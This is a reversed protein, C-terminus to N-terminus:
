RARWIRVTVVHGLSEDVDCAFGREALFPFLLQPVRTNVHQLVYGEPLTELAALTRMLPEPPELGRVDLVITSEDHAVPADDGSTAAPQADPPESPQADPRWFWSSWDDPADARSESAFGRKALVGFLPAPEFITRLLLVENTGLAGVASMIRSFPERGARLDERVDVEVIAASTPHTVPQEAHNSATVPTETAADAGANSFGLAENLRRVLRDAPVNAIRAAQEITVLRAMVRRLARNRLKAFHPAFQVLVEVLSEDRSLVDSVTDLSTVPMQRTAEAM